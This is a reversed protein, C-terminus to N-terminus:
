KLYSKCKSEGKNYILKEDKKAYLKDIVVKMRQAGVPNATVLFIEGPLFEPHEELWCLVDYGTKDEGLDHDLWLGDYHKAQLAQIGAIYTKATDGDCGFDDWRRLDDILLRTEM